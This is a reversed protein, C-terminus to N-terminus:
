AVQKPHSRRVEEDISVSEDLADFMIREAEDYGFRQVLQAAAEVNDDLRIIPAVEDRLESPSRKDM